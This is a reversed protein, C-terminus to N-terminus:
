LSLETTGIHSFYFCGTTINHVDCCVTCRRHKLERLTCDQKHLEIMDNCETHSESGKQVLSNIFAQNSESENKSRTETEDDYDSFFIKSFRRIKNERKHVQKLLNNLFLWNIQSKTDIFEIWRLTVNHFIWVFEFLHCRKLANWIIRIGDFQHKWRLGQGQVRLKTVQSMHITVTNWQIM